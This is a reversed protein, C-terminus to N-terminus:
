VEATKRVCVVVPGLTHSMHTWHLMKLCGLVAGVAFICYGYVVMSKRSYSKRKTSMFNIKCRKTISIKMEKITHPNTPFCFKPKSSM